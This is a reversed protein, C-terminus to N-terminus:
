LSTWLNEKLFITKEEVILGDTSKNYFLDCDFVTKCIWV